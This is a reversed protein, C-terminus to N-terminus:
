KVIGSFAEYNVGSRFPMWKKEKYGFVWFLKEIEPLHANIGM